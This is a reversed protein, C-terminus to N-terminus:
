LYNRINWIAVLNYESEQRKKKCKMIVARREVVRYLEGVVNAKRGLLLLIPLMADYCLRFLLLGGIVGEHNANEIDACQCACYKEKDDWDCVRPYKM